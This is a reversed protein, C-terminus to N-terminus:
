EAAVLYKDLLTNLSSQHLEKEELAKMFNDIESKHNAKLQEINSNYEQTLKETLVDIRTKVQENYKARTEALRKDAETMADTVIVTANKEVELLHNIEEMEVNNETAM